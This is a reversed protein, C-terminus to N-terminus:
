LDTVAGTRLHADLGAPIDPNDYLFTALSRGGAHLLDEVDRKAFREPDGVHKIALPAIVGAHAGLELALELTELTEARTPASLGVWAEVPREGAQLLRAEHKRTEEVVVRIVRHRRRQDLKNWEGTTGMVFIVDAGRGAQILYRVLRRQDADNPEGDASLCSVIPVSLGRRPAYDELTRVREVRRGRSARIWRM